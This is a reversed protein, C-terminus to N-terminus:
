NERSLLEVLIERAETVRLRARVDADSGTEDVHGRLTALLGEIVAERIARRLGPSDGDVGRFNIADFHEMVIRTTYSTLGDVASVFHDRVQRIICAAFAADTAESLDETLSRKRAPRLHRNM